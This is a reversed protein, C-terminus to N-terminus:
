TSATPVSPDLWREVVVRFQERGFPKAIYDSMGAALCRERDGALANATLAIIPVPTAGEGRAAEAQRIKETTVFGDMGPMQCDILILDYRQNNLADIVEAGDDVVDVQYGMTELMAKVVEQNVQNDEALLLRFAPRERPLRPASPLEIRASPQATQDQLEILAQRLDARRVPKTLWGDIGPASRDRGPSDLGASGLLLLGTAPARPDARIRKAVALGDMGPMDSDVIAVDYGTQHDAIRRLADPGSPATDVQHGWRELLRGLIELTTENDDVVLIRLSKTPVLDRAGGSRREGPVTPMTVTFRFRSGKGVESELELAGGMQGCLKTAVALGLGTGGFQRASSGDAQTFEQFVRQHDGAAIGIGTDSVAFELVAEDPNSGAPRLRKLEVVVRGQSTFKVANGVLNTLVQRLRVADGVVQGPVGEDVGCVVEVGKAQARSALMVAVDEVLVGPDLPAAELKLMGAEIKSFGLIDNIIVLLSEGSRHATDVFRRQQEDLATGALLETMGLVGNMPTRLEHSMNALFQSKAVNAAEAKDKAAELEKTNREREVAVTQMETMVRHGYYMAGLIMVLIFGAIVLELRRLDNAVALQRDFYSQQIRRVDAALRGLAGNLQAYKRDRTAMREGAREPRRNAFHSFILEAESAM